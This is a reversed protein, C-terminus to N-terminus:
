PPDQRLSSSNIGEDQSGLRSLNKDNTSEDIFDTQVISQQNEDQQMNQNNQPEAITHLKGMSINNKAM